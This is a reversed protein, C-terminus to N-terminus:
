NYIASFANNGTELMCLTTPKEFKMKIANDTSFIATDRYSLYQGNATLGGNLVFLIINKAPTTAEIEFTTRAEFTGIRLWSKRNGVSDTEPAMLTYFRGNEPQSPASHFEYMKDNVASSLWIELFEAEDNEGSSHIVSQLLETGPNVLLTDHGNLVTRYGSSDFYDASGNLMMRIIQMPAGVYNEVEQGGPSMMKNDFRIVQGWGTNAPPYVVPYLSHYTKVGGMDTFKRNKEAVYKM